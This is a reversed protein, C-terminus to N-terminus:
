KAGAILGEATQIGKNRLRLNGKGDDDTLTKIRSVAVEANSRKYGHRQIQQSLEKDSMRKPYISWLILVAAERAGKAIDVYVRGDIEEVFPYRRKVVGEVVLKAQALDLGKQSYSVMEGLIWSSTTLVASADMETAELEDADHRAGRNSAIDYVFRCARVVTSRLSDRLTTKSALQDLITGAKFARGPSVTEGAHEWLAKLVAEVFRGATTTSDEWERKQYDEVMGQFHRVIADVYKASFTDKLMENISKDPVSYKRGDRFLSTCGTKHSDVWEHEKARVTHATNFKGGLLPKMKNWHKAVENLPVPKQTEGKSLYAVLLAFRQPGGMGKSHKKVFARIPTSFNIGGDFAKAHPKKRSSKSKSVPQLNAEGKYTHGNDDTLEFSIKM